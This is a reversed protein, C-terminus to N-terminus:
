YQKSFERAPAHVELLMLMERLHQVGLKPLDIYVSAKSQERCTEFFRRLLSSKGIGGGGVVPLVKAQKAALLAKFDDEAVRHIWTTNYAPNRGIPM